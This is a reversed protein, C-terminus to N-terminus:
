TYYNKKYIIHIYYFNYSKVTNRWKKYKGETFRFSLGLHIFSLRTYIGKLNLEMNSIALPFSRNIYATPRVGM